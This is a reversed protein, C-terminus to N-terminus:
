ESIHIRHDKAVVTDFLPMFSVQTPLEHNKAIEKFIFSTIANTAYRQNANHKIVLGDHLKPQHNEEHRDQFLFRMDVHDLITLVCLENSGSLSLM